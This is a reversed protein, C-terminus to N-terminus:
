PKKPHYVPFIVRLRIQLLSTTARLYPKGSTDKPTMMAWSVSVPDSKQGSQEGLRLKAVLYNKQSPTFRVRRSSDSKLAWGMPLTYDCHPSLPRTVTNLEPVGAAQGEFIEANTVAARDLLTERKLARQHKGCDLHRQMSSHRLFTQTCGEEPCTFVAEAARRTDDESEAEQEVQDENPSVQTRRQKVSAFSSPQTSTVTLAPM